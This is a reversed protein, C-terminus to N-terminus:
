IKGRCRDLHSALTQLSMYIKGCRPCKYKGKTKPMSIRKM